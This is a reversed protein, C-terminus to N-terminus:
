LGAGHKRTETLLVVRAHGQDDDGKQERAQQDQCEERGLNVSSILNLVVPCGPADDVVAKQM